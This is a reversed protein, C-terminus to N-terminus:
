LTLYVYCSPPADAFRQCLLLLAFIERRYQVAHRCFLSFIENKKNKTENTKNKNKTLCLVLRHVIMEKEKADRVQM